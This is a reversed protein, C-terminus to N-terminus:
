EGVRRMAEDLVHSSLYLGERILIELVPRAKPIIGRRKATLVLGLTGRVPIGHFAACKRGALDDIIAEREPYGYALALVASEGPGIGWDLISEPVPPASVVEIWPTNELTQSTIDSIGKRRIEEAVPEPVLIRYALHRLIHTQRGRSLFILPSANVIATRDV